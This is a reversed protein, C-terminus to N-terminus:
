IMIRVDERKQLADMMKNFMLKQESPERTYVTKLRGLPKAAIHRLFEDFNPSHVSDEPDIEKIERALEILYLMINEHFEDKSMNLNM